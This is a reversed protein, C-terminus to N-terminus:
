ETNFPLPYLIPVPTLRRVPDKVDGYLKEDVPCSKEGVSTHVNEDIAGCGCGTASAKAVGTVNQQEMGQKAGGLGAQEMFSDFQEAFKEYYKLTNQMEKLKKAYAKLEEASVEQPVQEQMQPQEQAVAPADARLDKSIVNEQEKIETESKAMM